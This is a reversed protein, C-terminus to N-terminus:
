YRLSLVRACEVAECQLQAACNFCNKGLLIYPRLKQRFFFVGIAPTLDLRERMNTPRRRAVPGAPNETDTTLLLDAM